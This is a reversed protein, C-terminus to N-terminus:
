EVLVIGDHILDLVLEVVVFIHVGVMHIDSRVVVAM